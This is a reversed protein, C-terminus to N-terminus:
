PIVKKTFHLVKDLFDEKSLSQVGKRVREELDPRDKILAMCTAQRLWSEPHSMPLSFFETSFAKKWKKFIEENFDASLLHERLSSLIRRTEHELPTKSLTISELSFFIFNRGWLHLLQPTSMWVTPTRWSTVKGKLLAHYIWASIYDGSFGERGFPIWVGLSAIPGKHQFNTIPFRESYVSFKREPLIGPRFLYRELDLYLKMEEGSRDTLFANKVSLYIRVEKLFEVMKEYTISQTETVLDALTWEGLMDGIIQDLTPARLRVQALSVNLDNLREEFILQFERPTIQPNALANMLKSFIAFGQQKWYSCSVLIHRPLFELKFDCLAFQAQQQMNVLQRHLLVEYLGLLARNQVNSFEINHYPTQIVSCLHEKHSAAPFSYRLIEPSDTWILDAPVIIHEEKEFHAEDPIFPNKEFTYNPSSEEKGEPLYVKMPYIPIPAELIRPAVDPPIGEKWLSKPACLLVSLPAKKLDIYTRRSQALGNRCITSQNPITDVPEFRCYRTYRRIWFHVDNHEPYTQHITEVLRSEKLLFLTEQTEEQLHSEIINLTTSIIRRWNLVGEQSLHFTLVLLDPVKRMSIWDVDLDYALGSKRLAEYLSGHSKRQLYLVTEYAEQMAFPCDKENLEWALTLTKSGEVSPSFFGQTDLLGRSATEERKFDETPPLPAFSMAIEGKLSDIDRSSILVLVCDQPSYQSQAWKKVPIADQTSLPDSSIFGLPHNQGLLHLLGKKRRSADTGALNEPYEEHHSYPSQHLIKLEDIGMKVQQFLYIIQNSLASLILPTEQHPCTLYYCTGDPFIESEISGQRSLLYSELSEGELIPLERRLTLVSIARSCASAIKDQIPDHGWFIGIGTETVKPDHIIWVQIGNEIKYKHVEIDNRYASALGKMPNLDPLEVMPSPSCVGLLGYSCFSIFACKLIKSM